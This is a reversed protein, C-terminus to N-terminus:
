SPTESSATRPRVQSIAAAIDRSLAELARGYAAVVADYRPGVVAQQAHSQGVRRPAGACAVTWLADVTVEAAARADFRRVDISVRCDPSGIADDRTSVQSSVLLKGLNEAVVRPIGVRLPEAWRQQELIAVRNADAHMVLQPRDVLEPLAAPAVVVSRATDSRAIGAALGSSLTYFREPPASACGAALVFVFVLSIRTM